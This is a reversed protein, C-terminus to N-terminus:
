DDEDGEWGADAKFDEVAEELVGMVWGYFDELGCEDEVGKEEMLTLFMLELRRRTM